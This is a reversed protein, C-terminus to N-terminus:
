QIIIFLYFVLVTIRRDFSKKDGRNKPSKINIEYFFQILRLRSLNKEKGRWGLFWIGVDM